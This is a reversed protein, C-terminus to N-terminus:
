AAQWSLTMNREALLRPFADGSLFEFERERQVTVPDLSALEDDVFGPHCMMLGGDALGGLFAATLAAFTRRNSFDYAGSFGSNFRLGHAKARARFARSLGELLLSKPDRPLPAGPTRGCQRVWAGPAQESVATLFADQVQPFLQVHQHGDVFAPPKGFAAAFAGIQAAIEARAIEPDLQRAMARLLLTGLRPFADAELPRFHLTLPRFPATLTVHLGIACDPNAQAAAELAAIDDRGCAPAVMMVSVANLRRAGVLECIARNVGRSLGYDDACLRIRKLAAPADSM